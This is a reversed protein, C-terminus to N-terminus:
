GFVVMVTEVATATIYINAPLSAPDFFFTFPYTPHMRTGADGSTGGRWTKAAGTPQPVVKVWLTGAPVAITNSGIALAVPEQMGPSPTNVIPGSTWPQAPPFGNGSFGFQDAYTSTITSSVSASM